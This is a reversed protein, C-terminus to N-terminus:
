IVRANNESADSGWTKWGNAGGQNKSADGYICYAVFQCCQYNGKGKKILEEARQQEAM